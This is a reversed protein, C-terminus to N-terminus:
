NKVAEMDKIGDFKPQIVWKGTKDIMGWKDGQKAAAFGNKFDRTGDFQPKIVWEGKSNYFGKKDGVKGDALGESFDGWTETSNVNVMEGSKSVYAWHDGAKVRALGSEKDFEKGADFQPKIVWEGKSNIYGLKGDAEKAWALGNQFYGVSQYRAPIAVKGDSGIFGFKKDSAKYPAYGESFSRMDTIGSADVPNETGKTDLVFYKDGMKASAYGDNFDNADDYKAQIVMKGDTNMYGWKEGVKIMAMGSKFGEVDFGMGDRLKFAKVETNLNEGKTNIFYYQHEDPNYIAAWGDPSFKYCKSYKPQIIIEGKENAYGWLKEGAPKVQTIYTQSYSVLTCAALFLTPIFRKM